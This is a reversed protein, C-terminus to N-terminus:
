PVGSGEAQQMLPVVLQEFIDRQPLTPKAITLGYLSISSAGRGYGGYPKTGREIGPAHLDTDRLITSADHLIRGGAFPRGILSEVYPSHGFVTVYMASPAYRPDEFYRSLEGDGDYRQVVFVPAFHDTYDSGEELPKRIITPEVICSKTRIVGPTATDLWDANAVFLAQIRELDKRSTLPGVRNQRDAYPGVKVERLAERLRSVFEEERAEHVLIANPNACDQGQNYLQVRLASRVASRVDATETVVIPNHGPGNAIFLVNRDFACRVKEANAMTGTFIVVDTVPRKRHTRADLRRAAREQVFEEHRARSFFVTPFHGEVDLLRVLDFFFHSMALPPRVHAESAMLAPVLGFCALAYLPQNRPLFAAVPGVQRVFYAANEPLSRLLDLTRATEDSAVEYTEYRLLLDIMEEQRAEITDAFDSARRLIEEGDLAVPYTRIHRDERAREAALRRRSGPRLLRGLLRALSQRESGRVVFQPALLTGGDRELLVPRVGCAALAREIEDRTQDPLRSYERIVVQGGEVILTKSSLNM